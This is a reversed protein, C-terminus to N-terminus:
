MTHLMNVVENFTLESKLIRQSWDHTKSQKTQIYKTYDENIQLCNQKARKEVKINKWNLKWLKHGKCYFVLYGNLM